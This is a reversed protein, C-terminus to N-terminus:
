PIAWGRSRSSATTFQLLPVEDNALRKGQRDYTPLHALNAAADYWGLYLTYHDDSLALPLALPIVDVVIEGPLWAWSPNSGEQPESDYQAVIQNQADRVQVYRTL